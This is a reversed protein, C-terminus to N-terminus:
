QHAQMAPAVDRGAVMVEVDALAAALRDRLRPLYGRETETHGALLVACGEAQAALVDHHGMEGTLYATCGQAVATALLGKGSGACVGVVAIPGDGAPAVDLRPVGLHTRVREALEKLAVPRDLVIRRGAGITRDPRPLLEHIEIPPEEYPHFHRLTALALPLSAAPCVMELRVEPVRELRGREGVAPTSAENGLFTGEGAVTFSCLEYNGMRGAGVTSLAQRVRDVAEAPCFTIIKRTEGAPASAHATLARVDGAGAGEALWDNVGGAAADLATHPSYIAIGARAARLVIRAKSREDTLRKIPEFIPPHYAVLADCRREIAEDLVPETLDIALVIRRAPDRMSGLLLGVNDWEEALRSPAISEMAACLREITTM